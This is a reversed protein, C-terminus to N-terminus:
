DNRDEKLKLAHDRLLGIDNKCDGTFKKSEWRNKTIKVLKSETEMRKAIEENLSKQKENTLRQWNAIESERISDKAKYEILGAELTENRKKAIDLEKNSQYLNSFLIINVFLSIALIFRSAWKSTIIKLIVEVM